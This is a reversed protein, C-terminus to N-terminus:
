SKGGPCQKSLAYSASAPDLFSAHSQLTTLRSTEGKWRSQSLWPHCEPASWCFSFPSCVFSTQLCEAPRVMFPRPKGADCGESSIPRRSHLLQRVKGQMPRVCSVLRQGWGIAAAFLSSSPTSLPLGVGLALVQRTSKPTSFSERDDLEDHAQMSLGLNGSPGTPYKVCNLLMKRRSCSPTDFTREAHISQLCAGAIREASDDARRRRSSSNASRCLSFESDSQYGGPKCSRRRNHDVDVQMPRIFVAGRACAPSPFRGPFSPSAMVPVFFHAPREMGARTADQGRM